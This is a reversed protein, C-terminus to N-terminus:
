LDNPTLGTKKAIRSLIRPGLEEGDHFAWTYKAWGERILTKHSGGNSRQLEWGIKLLAKYVRNAKTAGWTM